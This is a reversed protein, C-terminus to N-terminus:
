NRLRSYTPAIGGRWGRAEMAHLPVVKAKIEWTEWAQLRVGMKGDEATNGVYCQILLV